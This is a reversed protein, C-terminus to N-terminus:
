SPACCPVWMAVTTARGPGLSSGSVLSTCGHFRGASQYPASVRAGYWGHGEPQLVMECSIPKHSLLWRMSGHALHM